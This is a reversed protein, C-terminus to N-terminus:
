PQVEIMDDEALRLFGYDEEAKEYAENENNAVVTGLRYSNAMTHRPTRTKLVVTWTM